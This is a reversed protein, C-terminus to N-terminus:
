TCDLKPTVSFPFHVGCDCGYYCGVQMPCPAKLFLCSQILCPAHHM